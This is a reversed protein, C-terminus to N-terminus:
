LNYVARGGPILRKLREIESEFRTIKTNQADIRELLAAIDSRIFPEFDRWAKQVRVSGSPLIGSEVFAECRTCVLDFQEDNM